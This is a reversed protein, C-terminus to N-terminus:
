SPQVLLVTSFMLVGNTGCLDCTVREVRLCSYNKLYTKIEILEDFAQDAPDTINKQDKLITGKRFCALSTYAM